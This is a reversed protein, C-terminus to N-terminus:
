MFSSYCFTMKKNEKKRNQKLMLAKTYIRKLRERQLILNDVKAKLIEPNFPKMMYDDAGSHSGELIDADEAKATLMLIPIHATEQQSRIEQCCTIRRKCADDRGFYDFRSTEREGNTCKKGTSLKM